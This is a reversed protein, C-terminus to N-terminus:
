RESIRFLGFSIGVIDLWMDLDIDEVSDVLLMEMDDEVSYIGIEKMIENVDDESVVFREMLLDSSVKYDRVLDGDSDICYIKVMIIIKLKYLYLLNIKVFLIYKFM